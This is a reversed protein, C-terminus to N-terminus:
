RRALPPPLTTQSRTSMQLAVRVRRDVDALQAPMTAVPVLSLLSLAVDYYPSQDLTSLQYVLLMLAVPLAILKSMSLSFLEDRTLDLALSSHQQYVMCVVKVVAVSVVM